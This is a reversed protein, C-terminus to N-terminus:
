DVLGEAIPCRWRECADNECLRPRSRDATLPLRAAVDTAIGAYMGADRACLCISGGANPVCCGMM